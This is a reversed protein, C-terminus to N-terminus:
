CKRYEEIDVDERPADFCCPYDAAQHWPKCDCELCNFNEGDFTVFYHSLRNLNRQENTGIFPVPRNITTM